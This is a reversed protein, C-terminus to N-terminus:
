KETKEDAFPYGPKRQFQLAYDTENGAPLYFFTVGPKVFRGV